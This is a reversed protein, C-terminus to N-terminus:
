QKSHDEPWKDLPEWQRYKGFKQKSRMREAAGFMLGLVVPIAALIIGASVLACVLGCFWGLTM